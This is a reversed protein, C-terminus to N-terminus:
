QNFFARRLMENDVSIRQAERVAQEHLQAMELQYNREMAERQIGCDKEWLERAQPFLKSCALLSSPERRLFTVRLLTGLHTEKGKM